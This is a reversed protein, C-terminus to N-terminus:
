RALARRKPGAKLRIHSHCIYSGGGALKEEIHQSSFLFIRQVHTSAMMNLLQRSLASSNQWEMGSERSVM